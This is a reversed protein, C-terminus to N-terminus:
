QCTYNTAYPWCFGTATECKYTPPCDKGTACAQTCIFPNSLPGFAMCLNGQCEEGATGDGAAYCCGGASKSGLQWQDAPICAPPGAPECQESTKNCAFGPGTTCAASNTCRDSCMKVGGFDLCARYRCDDNSTCCYGTPLAGHPGPGTAGGTSSGGTNSGGTNSGGTNSGGTNSGGTSTGRAGGAASGAAGGSSSEGVTQGQCGLTALVFLGVARAVM